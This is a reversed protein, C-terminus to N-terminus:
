VKEGCGPCFWGKCKIIMNGNEYKPEEFRVDPIVDKECKDCRAWVQVM